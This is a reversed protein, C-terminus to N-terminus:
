DKTLLTIYVPWLNKASKDRLIQFKKNNEIANKLNGNKISAM